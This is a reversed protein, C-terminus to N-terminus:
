GSFGCGVVVVVLRSEDAAGGAEQGRVAFAAEVHVGFCAADEDELVGPEAM